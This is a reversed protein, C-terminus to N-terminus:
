ASYAGFAGESTQHWSCFCDLKLPVLLNAISQVAEGDPPAMWGLSQGARRSAISYCNPQTVLSATLPTATASRSAGDIPPLREAVRKLLAPNAPYLWRNRIEPSSCTGRM